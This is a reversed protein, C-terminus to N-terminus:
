VTIIYIGVSVLGIATGIFVVEFVTQVRQSHVYDLVIGLLGNFGHYVASLLFLLNFANWFPDSLRGLVTEYSIQGAGSYHMTYFHIVLGALLVAGTIRQFLWEIVQKL